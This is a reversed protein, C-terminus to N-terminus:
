AAALFQLGVEVSGDSRVRRWRIQGHFARATGQLDRFGVELFSGQAFPPDQEFVLSAGHTSLNRIQGFAKQGTPAKSFESDKVRVGGRCRTREKIRHDLRSEELFRQLRPVWDKATEGQMFIQSKGSFPQLELNVEKVFVAWKVGPVRTQAERLLEFVSPSLARVAIFIAFINTKGWESRLSDISHCHRFQFGALGGLVPRLGKFDGVMLISRM